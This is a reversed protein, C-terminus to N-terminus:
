ASLEPPEALPCWHSPPIGFAFLGTEEVGQWEQLEQDFMGITVGRKWLRHWLQIPGAEWPYASHSPNLPKWNASATSTPKATDAAVPAPPAAPEWEEAWMGERTGEDNVVCAQGSTGWFVVEYIRGITTGRSLIRGKTVRVHTPRVAEIDGHPATRTPPPAPTM